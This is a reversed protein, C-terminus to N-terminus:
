ITVQQTESSRMADRLHRYLSVTRLLDPLRNSIVALQPQLCFPIPPAHSRLPHMFSVVLLPESSMECDLNARFEGGEHKLRRPPWLWTQYM